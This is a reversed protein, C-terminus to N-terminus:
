GEPCRQIPTKGALQHVRQRSLGLERGVSACTAGAAIREEILATRASMCRAGRRRARRDMEQTAQDIVLDIDGRRLGEALEKLVGKM